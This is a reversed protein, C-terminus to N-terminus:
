AGHRKERKLNENTKGDREYAELIKRVLEHRVVDAHDFYHFAIGEIRSLIREAHLLGSAANRPLDTQTVDGTVVAKSGEGIRSLFMKM